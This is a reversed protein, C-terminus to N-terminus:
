LNDKANFFQSAWDYYYLEKGKDDKSKASVWYDIKGTKKNKKKEIKVVECPITSEAKHNIEHEGNIEKWVKSGKRVVGKAKKGMMESSKISSVEVGPSASEEVASHRDHYHNEPSANPWEKPDFTGYCTETDSNYKSWIEWDPNIGTAEEVEDCKKLYVKNEHHPHRKEDSICNPYEHIEWAHVMEHLITSTLIDKDHKWEFNNNILILIIGKSPGYEYKDYDQDYNGADLDINRESKPNDDDNPALTEGFETECGPDKLFRAIDCYKFELFNFLNDGNSDRFVNVVRQDRALARIERNFERKREEIPRLTWDFMEKEEETAEIGNSAEAEEAENYENITKM